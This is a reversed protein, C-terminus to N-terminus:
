RLHSFLMSKSASEDPYSGSPFEPQWFNETKQQSQDEQHGFKDSLHQQELIASHHKKVGAYHKDFHRLGGQARSLHISQEPHNAIHSPFQPYSSITHYTSSDSPIQTSFTFIRLLSVSFENSFIVLSMWLSLVCCYDNTVNTNVIGKCFFPDDQAM